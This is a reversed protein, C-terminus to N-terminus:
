GRGLAANSRSPFPVWTSPDLETKGGPNGERAARTARGAPFSLEKKLLM